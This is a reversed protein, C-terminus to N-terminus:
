NPVHTGPSGPNSLRYSFSTSAEFAPLAYLSPTPWLGPTPTHHPIISSALPFTLRQPFSGIYSVFSLVPPLICALALPGPFPWSWSWSSCSCPPVPCPVFLFSCPDPMPYNKMAATVKSAAFEPHLSSPTFPDALCSSFLVLCESRSPPRWRRARVLVLCGDLTASYGGAGM